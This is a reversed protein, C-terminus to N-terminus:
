HHHHAAVSATCAMGAADIEAMVAALIRRNRGLAVHGVGGFALNRAGPLRSSTQPAIINDHHSYISTIRARAAADEGDALMRLWTCEPGGVGSRRMQRANAGPGLSALCTGHHPTGLTILRAVRGAGHVRMWARAALGGMSHGVVVLRPAGTLRCLRAAADEIGAAYSDIDGTLPELDIAAHSIRAADLLPVLHAWYGSNCGYGHLLLVPPASTDPAIRPATGPDTGPASCPYIRTHAHARPMHWSTTGMSTSFEEWFMRLAAALGLRHEPPTPSGARAAMRFNNANILLRVLVVSGLGAAAGQWPALGFWRVGALGIALAGLAQALLVLRMLTRSRMGAGRDPTTDSTEMRHTYAM